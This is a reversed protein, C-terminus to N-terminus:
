DFLDGIGTRRRIGQERDLFIQRIDDPVGRDLGPSVGLLVLRGDREVVYVVIPEEGDPGALTVKSTCFGRPLCPWSLKSPSPRPM